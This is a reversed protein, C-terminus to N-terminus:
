PFMQWRRHLRSSVVGLAFGGILTADHWMVLKLFAVHALVLWASWRVLTWRTTLAAHCLFFAHGSYGWGPLFARTLSAAIVVVDVIWCRWGQDRMLWRELLFGVFPLAIPVLYYLNWTVVPGPLAYLLGTLAAAAVWPVAGMWFPPKEWTHPAKRPRGTGNANAMGQKM